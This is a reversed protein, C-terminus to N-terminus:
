QVYNQFEVNFPGPIAEGYNQMRWIQVYEILCSISFKCTLAIQRSTHEYIEYFGESINLKSHTIAVQLLLVVYSM